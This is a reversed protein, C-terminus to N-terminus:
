RNAAAPPLGSLPPDTTTPNRTKPVGWNETWLALFVQKLPNQSRQVSFQPVRFVRFGAVVSGVVWERGESWQHVDAVTIPPTLVYRVSSPSPLEGQFKQSDGRSKVRGIGTELNLYSGIKPLPHSSASKLSFFPKEPPPLDTFLPNQSPNRCPLWDM